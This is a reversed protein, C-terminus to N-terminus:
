FYKVTTINLKALVDFDVRHQKMCVAVGDFNADLKKVSFEKDKIKRMWPVDKQAVFPDYFALDACGKKKIARAFQLAPSGSLTSQGPKFGVGIIMIRPKRGVRRSKLKISKIFKLALKDPRACMRSTAKQLLPLKNNAMLYFPNVPICHGGVGVGPQFAQFGFPKSSAASIVEKADIGQEDCADAIENVYAINIMRYCNEYLKTMEAVEPSSVPVITDFVRSYLSQISELCGPTMGSLVKPITHAAPVTRGPDVREPSMGCHYTPLLHGILARTMGVSVSSEIVITSGPKAYSTVTEIAKLLHTSDVTKDSRLLTPVSILFHSARSLQSEDNTLELSPITKYQEKLAQIREPSVDFGITEYATAFETALMEGVYGVGIIAVIRDDKIAPLAKTTINAIKDAM